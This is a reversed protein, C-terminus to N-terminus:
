LALDFMHHMDGYLRIEQPGDIAIALTLLLDGPRCCRRVGGAAFAGRDLARNGLPACCTRVDDRTFWRRVIDSETVAVTQLTLLLYRDLLKANRVSFGPYVRTLFAILALDCVICDIRLFM